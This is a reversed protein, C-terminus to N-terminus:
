GFSFSLTLFSFFNMTLFIWNYIKALPFIRIYCWAHIFAPLILMYLESGSNNVLINNFLGHLSYSTRQLLIRMFYRTPVTQLDTTFQTAVTQTRPMFQPKTSTQEFFLFFNLCPSVKVDDVHSAFRRPIQIPVLFFTEDGSFFTCVGVCSDTVNPRSMQASRIKFM